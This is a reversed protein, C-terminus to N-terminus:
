ACLDRMLLERAGIRIVRPEGSNLSTHGVCPRTRDRHDPLRQTPQKRCALPEQVAASVRDAAVCSEIQSPARLLPRILRAPRVRRPQGNSHSFQWADRQCQGSHKPTIAGPTPQSPNQIEFIRSRKANRFQIRPSCAPRGGTSTATRSRRKGKGLVACTTALACAFITPRQFLFCAGTSDYHSPM